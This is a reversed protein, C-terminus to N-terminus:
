VYGKVKLKRFVSRAKTHFVHNCLYPVLTDLYWVVEANKKSADHKRRIRGLLQELTDTYIPPIGIHLCDLARINAGTSAAQITAVMCRSRRQNTFELLKDTYRSDSNTRGTLRNVDPIGREVLMDVLLEVHDHFKTVLLISRGRKWDQYVNEVILANRAEDSFMHQCLDYWNLNGEQGQYTLHTEVVKVKDIPLSTSTESAGTDIVSLPKGFYYRLEPIIAGNKTDTATAGIVYRGPFSAVYQSLQPASVGQVEDVVLTGFEKSWEEWLHQRRTLTRLSALTFVSGIRVTKQKILGILDRSFGFAKNLDEFWTRLILETPCLVLVRFGLSYALTAQFITKGVSTSALALCNGAPRAGTRLGNLCSDWLTQQEPNLKFGPRFKLALSKALLRGKRRDVTEASNFWDTFEQSMLNLPFGRPILLGGQELRCFLKFKPLSPSVYGYPSFRSAAIWAPNVTRLKDQCEDILHAPLGRLLWGNCLIKQM